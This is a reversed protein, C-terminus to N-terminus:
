ADRLRRSAERVNEPPRPDPRDAAPAHDVRRRRPHRRARRPPGQLRATRAATGDVGRRGRLLRHRRGRARRLVAPPRAGRLPHALPDLTEEPNEESQGAIAPFEADFILARDADFLRERGPDTGSVPVVPVVSQEHPTVGNESVPVIGIQGPKNEALNPEVIRTTGTDRNPPPNGSLYRSWVDDFQAREYGNRKESDIRISKAFIEYPALKKGLERTSIGRGDSWGGYPMEDRSNLADALENCFIREDSFLDRIHGLLRVGISVDLQRRGGGSLEIAAARAREPWDGGAHDAIRFLIRWIENGRADLETLKAPRLRPDALVDRSEDAWSRLNIQIIEAQETAEEVDLEEYIDEPRPPQMSIPISRHALTAPLQNLGAIAKPCFCDFAVVEHSNGVCRFAVKGRRYGSNLVARIGETSDSNKKSFIADVEDILLTPHRSDILRFLVAESMNDVTVANDAILALVELVTTKGSGPEPSYPRLYPTAPAVDYVYTHANWLVIADRQVEGSVVFRSVFRSSDDLVSALYPHSM